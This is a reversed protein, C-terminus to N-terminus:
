QSGSLMLVLECVDVLFPKGPLCILGGPTTGICDDLSLKLVAVFGRSLLCAPQCRRQLRLWHYSPLLIGGGYLLWACPLLPRRFTWWSGILGSKEAILSCDLSALFPQDAQGWDQVRDPSDLLDCSLSQCSLLRLRVSVSCCRDSASIMFRLFSILIKRSAELVM